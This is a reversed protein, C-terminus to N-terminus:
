EEPLFRILKPMAEWATFGEGSVENWNIEIDHILALLTAAATTKLADSMSEDSMIAASIEDSKATAPLNYTDLIAKYQRVRHALTPNQAYYEGFTKTDVELRTYERVTLGLAALEEASKIKGKVYLPIRVDRVITQPRVVYPTRYSIEIGGRTADVLTHLVIDTDLEVAEPETGTQVEMNEENEESM